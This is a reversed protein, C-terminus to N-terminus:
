YTEGGPAPPGWNSVWTVVEFVGWLAVLIIVSALLVWGTARLIRM